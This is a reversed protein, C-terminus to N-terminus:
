GSGSHSRRWRQGCTQSAALQRASQVFLGGESRRLSYLAAGNDTSVCVKRRDRSLEWDGMGLAPLTNTPDAGAIQRAIVRQASRSARSALSRHHLADDYLGDILAVEPFDDVKGLDDIGRPTLRWTWTRARGLCDGCAFFTKFEDKVSVRLLDGEARLRTGGEISFDYLRVLLPTVSRGDWRWISIQAGITGGAWEGYSGNIFFRRAGTADAPLRGIAAYLPGCESWHDDPRTDQCNNRTADERWGLLAHLASDPRPREDAARWAVTVHSGARTLIFVDGREGLQISVLRTRSDLRAVEVGLDEALHGVRAELGQDAIEPRASLIQAAYDEAVRWQRRLLGPSGADGDLFLGDDHKALAARAAAFALRGSQSPRPADARSPCPDALLATAVSLAAFFRITPPVLQAM